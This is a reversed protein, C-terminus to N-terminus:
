PYPNGQRALYAATFHECLTWGCCFRTHVRVPDASLVHEKAYSEAIRKTAFMRVVSGDVRPGHEYTGNDMIGEFTWEGRPEREIKERLRAITEDTQRRIVANGRHNASAGM